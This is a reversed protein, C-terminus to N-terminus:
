SEASGSLVGVPPMAQGSGATSRHSNSHNTRLFAPISNTKIHLIRTDMVECDIQMMAEYEKDEIVSDNLNMAPLVLSMKPRSGKSHNTAPLLLHDRRFSVVYFTDGRRQIEEFFDRYSGHRTYYVQLESASNKETIDTYQVTAVESVESKKGLSKLMAKTKHRSRSKVRESEHRHVWGRLESTLRIAKTRNVPSSCPQPVGFFLSHRKVVMLAKEEPTSEELREAAQPVDAEPTELGRNNENDATSFGLLHRGPPPAGSSPRSVTDREFLGTPGVSLMIFAMVVLLCVARRKPATVQLDNNEAALSDLRLKLSSNESKLRQNEFLAMKLRAELTLLHEKKKRRSMCASERNKMMRQHRKGVPPNGSVAACHYSGTVTPQPFAPSQGATAPMIVMRESLPEAPAPAVRPGSMQLVTQMAPRGAPPASYLSVPSSRVMPLATCLPQIIITKTQLPVPVSNPVVPKPQISVKPTPNIIRRPPHVSKARSGQSHRRQPRTVLGTHVSSSTDSSVPPSSLVPQLSLAEDHLYYPSLAEVSGPSSVSSITTNPSLCSVAVEEEICSSSSSTDETTATGWSSLNLGCGLDPAEDTYPIGELIRLLEEENGIYELEDFLSIDWEGTERSCIDNVIDETSTHFNDLHSELDILNAAM